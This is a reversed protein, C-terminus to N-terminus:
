RYLNNDSIYESVSDSVFSHVSDDKWWNDRIYTSSVPYNYPIVQIKADYDSVLDNVASDFSISQDMGRRAVLIICNKFILDPCRWSSITFITDEGILFYLEDNPYRDTFELITEYSYSPGKRVVEIDSVLINRNDGFCDKVCLRTMILRKEAALVGTKFYSEGSPIFIFEDLLLKNMAEKAMNIHGKHIPNFTGGFLCRKM